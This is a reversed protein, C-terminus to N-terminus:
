RGPPRWFAAELAEEVADWDPAPRAPAIIEVRSDRRWNIPRFRLQDPTANVMLWRGPVRFVGKLRMFGQPLVGGPRAAHMVWAELADQDFARDVPFIWGCTAVEGDGDELRAPAGEALEPRGSASATPAPEHERLERHEARQHVHPLRRQEAPRPDLDLWAPDLVGDRTTAVVLKPPFLRDAAERFAAIQADTALDCRNAVLVDALAVQDQYTFHEAYKPLLFHRPDVLGITARPSVAERIGPKRLTDVITAPHALGTPEILLRDPREERLLRVLGITLKVGATCCICGGAIEQVAYGEGLAAGDIGVRGFENVLVAWREGEPRHRFLDLIATTKGVGLFGTVITVPVDRVPFESM